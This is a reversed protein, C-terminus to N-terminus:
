RSVRVDGGDRGTIGAVGSGAVATGSGTSIASGHTAVSGAAYIVDGQVTIQTGARAAPEQWIRGDATRMFLAPIWWEATGVAWIAKRGATLARDVGQGV